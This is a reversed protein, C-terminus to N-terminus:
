RLVCRAGKLQFDLLKLLSTIFFTCMCWNCARDQMLTVMVIYSIGVPITSGDPNQVRALTLTMDTDTASSFWKYGYLRYTGDDQPVALTETGNAIYFFFM